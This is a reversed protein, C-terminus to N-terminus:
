IECMSRYLIWIHSLLHFGMRATPRYVLLLAFTFYYYSLVTPMRDLNAQYTVTSESRQLFLKTRQDDTVFM